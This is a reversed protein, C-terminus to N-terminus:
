LATELATISSLDISNIREWIPAININDVLLKLSDLNAKITPISELDLHM